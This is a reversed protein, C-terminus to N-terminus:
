RPRAEELGRRKKVKNSRHSGDPSHGFGYKALDIKDKKFKVGERELLKKQREYAGTHKPFSITGKSNIVRHWPVGSNSKLSHLAYGVLRAHERLGCIRAIQGYTAVKGKPIKKVMEYIIEYLSRVAKAM